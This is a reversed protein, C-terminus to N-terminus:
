FATMVWARLATACRLRGYRYFGVPFGLLLLVAAAALWPRVSMRRKAPRVEPHSLPLIPPVEESTPPAVPPIDVDLRAAEAVLQHQALATEREAQCTNCGAVHRHLTASDGAELLGFLDDWIWEQYHDCTGM